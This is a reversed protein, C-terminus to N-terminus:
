GHIMPRAAEIRRSKDNRGWTFCRDGLPPCFRQSDAGALARADNHTRPGAFSELPMM